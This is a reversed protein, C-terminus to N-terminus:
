SRAGVSETYGQLLLTIGTEEDIFHSSYYEDRLNTTFSSHAWSCGEQMGLLASPVPLSDVSRFELCGLEGM